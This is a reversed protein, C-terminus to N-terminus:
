EEEFRINIGHNNCGNREQYERLQEMLLAAQQKTLIIHTNDDVDKYVEECEQSRRIDPNYCAKFRKYKEYDATQSKKMKTAVAAKAAMCKDWVNNYHSQKNYAM